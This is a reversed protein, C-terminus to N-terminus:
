LRALIGWSVISRALAHDAHVGRRLARSPAIAARCVGSVPRTTGTAYAIGTVYACADWMGARPDRDVPHSRSGPFRDVAFSARAHASRTFSRGHARAHTGAVISQARPTHPARAHRRAHMRAHAPTRRTHWLTGIRMPTGATTPSQMRAPHAISRAQRTHATIFRADWFAHAIECAADGGEIWRRHTVPQM